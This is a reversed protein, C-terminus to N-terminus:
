HRVLIYGFDEVQLTELAIHRLQQVPACHRKSINCLITNHYVVM